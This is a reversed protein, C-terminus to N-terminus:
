GGLVDKLAKVLAASKPNNESRAEDLAKKLVRLEPVVKGYYLGDGASWSKQTYVNKEEQTAERGNFELYVNDIDGENPMNDEQAQKVIREVDLSGCCETGGPYVNHDIVERHRKFDSIGYKAILSTVLEASAAYMADTYPVSAIGGAHEISITRANSDANGDCYATDSENVCQYIIGDSGIVYHSSVEVGPQQFRAIAAPADGVIHHFTIRSVPMHRGTGFNGAAAPRWVIDRM